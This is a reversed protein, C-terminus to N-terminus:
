FYNLKTLYTHKPIKDLNILGIPHDTKPRHSIFCHMDSHLIHGYESNNQDAYEQMWVSYPPIRLIEGYETGIRSFASWFLESYPCM